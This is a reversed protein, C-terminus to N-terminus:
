NVLRCNKRVEGENQTLVGINGMKKMSVGFQAMFEDFNEFAKMYSASTPDTLLAADLQFFAEGKQGLAVFYHSDFSLSSGPTWTSHQKRIM